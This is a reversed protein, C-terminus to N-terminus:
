VDLKNTPEDGGLDTLIETEKFRMIEYNKWRLNKYYTVNKEITDLLINNLM